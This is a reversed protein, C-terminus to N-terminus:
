LTSDNCMTLAISPSSITFVGNSCYILHKFFNMTSYCRKINNLINETQIDNSYFKDNNDIKISCNCKNQNVMGHAELILPNHALIRVTYINFM